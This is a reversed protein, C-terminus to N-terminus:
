YLHVCFANKVKYRFPIYVRSFALLCFASRYKTIAEAACRIWNNLPYITFVVNLYVLNQSEPYLPTSRSLGNEKFIIISLDKLNLFLILNCARMLHLSIKPHFLSTLAKM